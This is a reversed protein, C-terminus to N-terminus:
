GNRNIMYGYTSIIKEKEADNKAMGIFRQLLGSKLHIAKDQFYYYDYIFDYSAKIVNNIHNIFLPDFIIVTHDESNDDYKICEEKFGGPISSVYECVKLFEAIIEAQFVTDNHGKEYIVDTVSSYIKNLNHTHPVAYKSLSLYTKGFLEIYFVVNHFLAPTFESLYEFSFSDVDYVDKGEILEFAKNFILSIVAYQSNCANLFNNDTKTDGAVLGYTSIWIFKHESESIHLRRTQDYYFYKTQFEEYDIELLDLFRRFLNKNRFKFSEAFLPGNEVRGLLYELDKKTNIAIHKTDTNIM